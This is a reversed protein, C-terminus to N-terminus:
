TNSNSIFRYEKITFYLAAIMFVLGIIYLIAIHKNMFLNPINIMAGIISLFSNLGSYKYGSTVTNNKTRKSLNMILFVFYVALIGPIIFLLLSSFNSIIDTLHYLGSVLTLIWFFRYSLDYFFNNKQTDRTIQELLKKM